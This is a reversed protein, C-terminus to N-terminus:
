RACPALTSFTLCYNLTGDATVLFIHGTSPSYIWTASAPADPQFKHSCVVTGHTAGSPPTGVLLWYTSAVWTINGFVSQCTTNEVNLFLLKNPGVNVYNFCTCQDGADNPIGRKGCKTKWTNQCQPGSFFNTDCTCGGTPTPNGANSCTARSYQCAPGVSGSDCTCSGDPQPTGAGSCTGSRSYQCSNGAYGADCSCPTGTASPNGNNSCTISRSYQCINGAYGPDCTCKITGDPNNSPTGHESCSSRGQNCTAGAYGADCVCSGDNQPTGNGTCTEARSYQCTSGAYGTPCTCSGLTEGLTGWGGKACLCLSHQGEQASGCNTCTTAVTPVSGPVNSCSAVTFTCDPGYHGAACRCLLNHSADVTAGARSSPDCTNSVYCTNTYPVSPSAASQVYSVYDANSGVNVLKLTGDDQRMLNYPPNNLTHVAAQDFTGKAEMPTYWNCRTGNGMNYPGVTPVVPVDCAADQCYVTCTGGACTGTTDFVQKSVLGYQELIAEVTGPRAQCSWQKTAADCVLTEQSDCSPAPSQCPGIYQCEYQPPHATYNCVQQYNPGTCGSLPSTGACDSVCTTAYSMKDASVQCQAFTGAACTPSKTGFDSCPQCQTSAGSATGVCQAYQSDSCTQSGYDACPVCSMTTGDASCRGYANFPCTVTQTCPLCQTTGNVCRAYTDPACTAAVTAYDPCTVCTTTGDPGCQAYQSVGPCKVSGYDACPICTTHGSAQCQPYGSVGCTRLRLADPYDSCEVCTPFGDPHCVSYSANGTCKLSSPDCPPAAPTSPGAPSPPVPPPPPPTVSPVSPTGGSTNAFKYYLGIGGVALLVMVFLVVWLGRHNPAPDSM